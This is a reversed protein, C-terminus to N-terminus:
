PEQRLQVERADRASARRQLELADLDTVYAQRQPPWELRGESGGGVLLEQEDGRRRITHGAVALAHGVGVGVVQGLGALGDEVHQPVEKEREGEAEVDRMRALQRTRERADAAM